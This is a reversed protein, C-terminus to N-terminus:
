QYFWGSIFHLLLGGLGGSFMFDSNSPETGGFGGSLCLVMSVLISSDLPTLKPIHTEQVQTMFTWLVLIVFFDQCCSFM